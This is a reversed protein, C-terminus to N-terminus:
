RKLWLLAILVACLLIAVAYAVAKRRESQVVFSQRHHHLRYLLGTGLTPIKM